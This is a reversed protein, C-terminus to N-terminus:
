PIPMSAQLLSSRVDRSINPCNVLETKIRSQASGPMACSWVLDLISTGDGSYDVIVIDQLKRFQAEAAEDIWIHEKLENMVKDVSSGHIELTTVNPLLSIRHFLLIASHDDMPHITIKKLTTTTTLLLAAGEWIDDFPDEISVFAIEHINPTHYISDLCNMFLSFSTKLSRLCPLTIRPEIPDTYSSSYLLIASEVSEISRPAWVHLNAVEAEDDHHITVHSLEYKYPEQIHSFLLSIKQTPKGSTEPLFVNPVQEPDVAELTLEMPPPVIECIHTVLPSAAPLICFHLRHLAQIQNFAPELAEAPYNIESEIEARVILTCPLSGMRSVHLQIFERLSATHKRPLAVGITSWLSKAHIVLDRWKRCVSALLIPTAGHLCSSPSLASATPSDRALSAVDIFIQVWTEPALKWMTRAKIANQESIDADRIMKICNEVTTVSNVALNWQVHASEHRRVASSHADAAKKVLLAASDLAINSQELFRLGVEYIPGNGSTESIETSASGSTGIVENPLEEIHRNLTNLITGPIPSITRQLSLAAELRRRAQSLEEELAQVLQYSEQVKIDRIRSEEELSAILIKNSDMQATVANRDEVTPPRNRRMAPISHYRNHPPSDM